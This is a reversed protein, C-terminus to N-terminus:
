NKIVPIICPATRRMIDHVRSESLWVIYFAVYWLYTDFEEALLYVYM